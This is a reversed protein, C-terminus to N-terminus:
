VATRRVDVEGKRVISAAIGGISWHAPDIPIIRGRVFHQEVGLHKVILQTIGILLTQLQEDPRGTLTLCTFYPADQGGEIATLGGTSWHAAKHLTAFARARETPRPDIDPYLNNVYFESAERLLASVAEANHRGEIIHVELVPM